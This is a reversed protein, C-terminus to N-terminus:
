DFKDPFIIFGEYVLMSLYISNTNFISSFGLHCLPLSDAQWHLLCLLWPEIGRQSSGRSYSIAVWELIRTWFIKHVFSGPLICDMPDFYDSVVSQSLECIIFALCMGGYFFFFFFFPELDLHNFSKVPLNVRVKLSWVIWIVTVIKSFPSIFGSM